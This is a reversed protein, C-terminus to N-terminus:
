GPGGRFEDPYMEKLADIVWRKCIEARSTGLLGQKVVRDILGAQQPSVRIAVTEPDVKELKPM